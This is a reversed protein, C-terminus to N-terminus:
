PKVIQIPTEDNLEKFAKPTLYNLSAHPRLNHYFDMYVKYKKLVDRSDEFHNLFVFERQVNSHQSEIHAQSDPNHRYGFEQIINLKEFFMRVAKAKFQTGNDTRVVQPLTEQYLIAERFLAIVDGSKCSSGIFSGVIERSHVDIIDLLAINGETITSIVKIDAEWLIGPRNLRHVTSRRVPHTHRTYYKRVIGLKKRLRHLKKHNVIIGLENRLYKSLKKSGLVKLYYRPDYPDDFYFIKLLIEELEIDTIITGDTKNCFGRTRKPPKGALIFKLKKQNYYSSKPFSLAELVFSIAFGQGIYEEAL